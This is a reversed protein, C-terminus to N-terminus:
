RGDDASKAAKSSTRAADADGDSDAGNADPSAATGDSAEDDSAGDSSSKAEGRTAATGGEEVPSGEADAAAQFAAERDDGASINAAEGDDAPADAAEAENAADASAGAEGEVQAPAGSAEAEEMRSADQADKGVSPKEAAADEAEAKEDDGAALTKESEPEPEAPLEAVPRAEGGRTYRTVTFRSLKVHSDHPDIGAKRKAIAVQFGATDVGELDPLLVGRRRGKAVIVGYKRPDLDRESEVREPASLVDVSYSIHGLEDPTVAEFRPDESCALVANELIEDALTPHVPAITGICGRLEGDKHLSVFASAKTAILEAPADDPIAPVVGTRVFTEVAYRALAVCPDANATFISDGADEDEEEEVVPPASKAPDEPAEPTRFAAVGYGVGFPGELSLLESTFPKDEIAGTMIQFSRLGCEAAAEVMAPDMKFLDDLKGTDFIKGIQEDFQPGEPAYGYPGDEKLKHSLDGSAIFVARRDLADIARAICRGLERHVESSFGSLGIRVIRCPLDADAEPNAEKWAERVFSLPVYTAHDMTPGYRRDDVTTIHARDAYAEIKRALEVDCRATMEEDFARFQAMTGSLRPDVTIHFADRFLPAHPSTLVIVEPKAAVIERAVQQYAATTAAIPREDGKGVSPVIVPPHPVAFASIITM